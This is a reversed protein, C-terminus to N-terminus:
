CVFVVRESTAAAEDESCVLSATYKPIYTDINCLFGNGGDATYLLRLM